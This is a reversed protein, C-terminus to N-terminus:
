LSKRCSQLRARKCFMLKETTLPTKGCGTFARIKADMKLPIFGGAGEAIVIQLQLM